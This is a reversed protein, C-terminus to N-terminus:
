LGKGVGDALPADELRDQQPRRVLCPFVLQDGPLPPPLGSLPGPKM